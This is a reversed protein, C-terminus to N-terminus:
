GGHGHLEEEKEVASPRFLHEPLGAIELPEFLGAMTFGDLFSNWFTRPRRTWLGFISDQLNGPDPGLPAPSSPTAM